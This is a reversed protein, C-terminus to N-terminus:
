LWGLGRLTEILILSQLQVALFQPIVPQRERNAVQQILISTLDLGPRVEVLSVPNKVLDAPQLETNEYFFGTELGQTLGTLRIIKHM